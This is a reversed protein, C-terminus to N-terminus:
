ARGSAAQAREACRRIVLRSKRISRAGWSFKYPEDGRLFNWATFNQELAYKISEHLLTRGFGFAEYEPDFGSLYSYLVNRYPFALIIAVIGRQFSLTFFHVMNEHELERVIERLFGASQNAVIMGSEGQSRWRATHLRILAETLETDARCTVRFEPTDIRLAKESYRRLNRRLGYPRESWYQEFSGGIAIESCPMDDSALVELMESSSMHTLASDASLDQWCCIDWHSRTELHDKLLRIIEARDAVALPPELYDSIGTGLLTLQRLGQWEHLFCPIIGTLVGDRRFVFSQLQGSGFHKWWTLLWEPLHFPTTYDLGRVLTSWESRLDLLHPFSDIIELTVAPM